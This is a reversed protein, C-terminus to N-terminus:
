KMYSSIDISWLGRGYTAAYLKKEHYNIELESVIVNPLNGPLPEWKTTSANRFYVGRDTAAFLMDNSNRLYVLSYVPTEPLGQAFPEWSAGGNISYMIKNSGAVATDIDDNYMYAGTFAAWVKNPNDSASVPKVFNFYVRPKFPSIEEWCGNYCAESGGGVSTKFIRGGTFGTYIRKHDALNVDIGTLVSYPMMSDIRTLREWQIENDTENQFTGKYLQTFGFYYVNHDIPDEVVPGNNLANLNYDRPKLIGSFSKGGNVSRMNLGYTDTTGLNLAASFIIKDNTYDIIGERGDGGLVNRWQKDAPLSADFINAGADQHGSMVLGSKTESSGISNITAINLGNSADKRLTANWLGGDNAVFLEHTIPAFAFDHIDAHGITLGEWNEYINRTNFTTDTINKSRYFEWAKGIYIQNPDVPNVGISVKDRHDNPYPITKAKWTKCADTSVYLDNNNAKDKNGIMAYVISPNSPAIAIDIIMNEKSTFVNQNDAMIEWTKGADTSRMIVIDNNYNTRTGAVYIIKSNQTNLELGHYDGNLIKSWKKGANTTKYIGQSTAAYLIKNKVPDMVLRAICNPTSPNLTLGASVSSWTKGGDNTVYINLPSIHKRKYRTGSAIYLQKSNKPNIAIDAVGIFPLQDTSCDNNSWSEGNNISKWLGGTPSGAYMIKNTEGNYAPDFAICELRGIGLGPNYVPGLAEWVPQAPLLFHSLILFLFALLMNRTTM